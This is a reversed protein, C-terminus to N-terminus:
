RIGGEGTHTSAPTPGVSHIRPRAAATYAGGGGALNEGNDFYCNSHGWINSSYSTNLAAAATMRLSVSLASQGNAKRLNNQTDLYTLANRMQELSLPNTDRSMDQDVYQDYWEAKDEAGTLM